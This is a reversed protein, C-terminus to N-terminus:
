PIRTLLEQLKRVYSKFLPDTNPMSRSAWESALLVRVLQLTDIERANESLYKPSIGRGMCFAEIHEQPIDSKFLEALEMSLAMHGQAAGWDIIYAKGQSTVIINEKKLDSHCLHPTFEWPVISEIVGIAKQFEAPTLTGSSSLKSENPDTLYDFYWQCWPKDPSTPNNGFVDYNYGPVEIQHFEAAYEGIQYWVPRLDGTYEVGRIGDIKRQFSYSHPGINGVSIIEPTGDCRECVLDACGKERQHETVGTGECNLKLRLIFDGESTAIDFSHNIRGQHTVERVATPRASLGDELAERVIDAHQVTFVSRRDNSLM